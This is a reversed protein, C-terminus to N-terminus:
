CIYEWTSIGGNSSLINLNVVIGLCKGHRHAQIADYGLKGASGLIKIAVPGTLGLAVVWPLAAIAGAGGAVGTAQTEKKSLKITTKTWGWDIQPDATIPFATNSDYEVRQVLVGDEITLLTPISEGMADHAWPRAITALLEGNLLIGAVDDGGENFTIVEAEQPITLPFRYETPADSNEIHILTQMGNDLSNTEFTYDTSERKSRLSTGQVSPVTWGIAYQDGDPSTSTTSVYEEASASPVTIVLMMVATLAAIFATAWRM